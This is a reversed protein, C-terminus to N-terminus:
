LMMDKIFFVVAAIIVVMKLAYFFWGGNGIYSPWDESDEHCVPTDDDSKEDQEQRDLKRAYIECTVGQWTFQLVSLVAYVLALCAPRCFGTMIAHHGVYSVLLNILLFAAIWNAVEGAKKTFLYMEESARKAKM